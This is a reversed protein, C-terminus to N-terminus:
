TARCQGSQCTTSGCFLCPVDPPSVAVIPPAGDPKPSGAGRPTGRGALPDTGSNNGRTVVNDLVTCYMVYRPCNNLKHVQYRYTWYHQWLKQFRPNSVGLSIEPSGKDCRGGDTQCHPKEGPALRYPQGSHSLGVTFNILDVRYDSCLQCPFSSVEPRTTQMVAHDRVQEPTMATSAMAQLVATFDKECSVVKLILDDLCDVPRLTFVYPPQFLPLLWKRDKDFRSYASFLETPEALGVTSRVYLVPSIKAAYSTLHVATTVGDDLDAPIQPPNM